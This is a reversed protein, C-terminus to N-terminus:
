VETVFQLLVLVVVIFGWFLGNKRFHINQPVEHLTEFGM